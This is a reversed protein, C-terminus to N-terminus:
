ARSCRACETGKTILDEVGSGDLNARQIKRTGSDMWYIKGGAEDIAISRPLRLDTAVLDRLGTGDLNVRQIKSIGLDTWYMTGGAMAEWQGVGGLGVALGVLGVCARVVAHRM